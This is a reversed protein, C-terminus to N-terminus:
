KNADYCASTIGVALIPCGGAGGGDVKPLLKDWHTTSAGYKKGIGLGNFLTQLESVRTIIVGASLVRLEHLLRFNNLDRDFFETKNNWEVEVGVGEKYNDIKHTPTEIEQEDIRIASDFHKERWGREGLFGDLEQPVRSRGGGGIVIASKSLCFSRLCAMLEDWQEPFDTALISSAHKWEKFRYRDRLDQPIIDLAM